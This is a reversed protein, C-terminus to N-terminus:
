ESSDKPNVLLVPIDVKRMVHDAIDGFFFRMVGDRARTSMAIVDVGHKKMLRIIEQAPEDTFCVSVSVSYGQNSLRQVTPLLEAEADAELSGEQQHAYIPHTKPGVPDGGPDLAYGSDPDPAAIGIARPPKTVYLLILENQQAPLLSEVYPLIKRSSESRTVPILVKNKTM